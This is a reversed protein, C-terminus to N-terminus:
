ICKLLEIKKHPNEDDFVFSGAVFISAGAQVCKKANIDNIGGDVSIEVCINRDKILNAVEKIKPIVGDIFVQGGFGPEVTMILVMDVLHIINYISQANTNPKVAIGVKKNFDRIKSITKIADSECEIHFCILDAGANAFDEIYELPNSIMLHVDLFMNSVKSICKVVPIGVSINPVFHGDMVDIHLMQANEVKKIDGMLNAFDASLISPSIKNM